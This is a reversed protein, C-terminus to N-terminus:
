KKLRVCRVNMGRSRSAGRKNNLTQSYEYLCYGGDNANVVTSSWRYYGKGRYVFDDGSNADDTDTPKGDNYRVGCFPMWAYPENTSVAINKKMNLKRGEDSFETYTINVVSWADVHPIMWGPPSPDFFSKDKYGSSVPNNWPNGSHNNTKSWDAAAKYFCYPKQVGGDWGDAASYQYQICDPTGASVAPTFISKGLPLGQINYLTIDKRPFPDKRGFQYFLGAAANYDAESVSMSGLDRDMIYEYDNAWVTGAGDEYHHVAGEPVAVVYGSEYEPADNPNYDTIWLHWSWLYKRNEGNESKLRVGVLVNGGQQTENTYKFFFAKGGTGEYIDRSLNEGRDDCFTILRDSVDQWIVEAVWETEDTIATHRNEAYNMWYTNVRDKVPVRYFQKFGNNKADEKDVSPHIMYCNSEELWVMGGHEMSSDTDTDMDNITITLNYLHNALLKYDDTMNAGPYFRYCLPYNGKISTAMIEVHTANGPAFETKEKQSSPKTEPTQPNGPLYYTQTPFENEPRIDGVIIDLDAYDSTQTQLKNIDAFYVSTPLNRVQVSNIIVDTSTNIIKLNLKALARELPCAFSTDGAKVEKEGYMWFVTPSTHSDLVKYMAQLDAKTSVNEKVLPESNGINAIVVTTYSGSEPLLVKISQPIADYYVPGNVLEGSSNYQLLWFNDITNEDVDARTEAEETGMAVKEAIPALILPLEVEHVHENQQELVEDGCATFFSLCFTQLLLIHIKIKNM